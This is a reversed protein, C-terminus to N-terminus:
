TIKYTYNTTDDCNQEHVIAACYRMPDMLLLDRALLHCNANMVFLVIIIGVVIKLHLLDQEMWALLQKRALTASKQLYNAMVISVIPM